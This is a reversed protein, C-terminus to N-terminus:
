KAEGEKKVVDYARQVGDCFARSSITAATIADVEGGDKRVELKYSDPNKNKFQNPFASKSADMKDGLGPTETHKLVATNIITGDPMFGVMLLIRGGYGKDTYTEVAYGVLEEGKFAKNIIVPDSGLDPMVLVPELKDFGPVVQKIAAEKKQQQAKAIPAKTLNYVAGLSISAALSIVLLVLVMNKFTSETKAM